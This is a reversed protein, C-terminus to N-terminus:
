GQELGNKRPLNSALTTMVSESFDHFYIKNEINNAGFTVLIQPTLPLANDM